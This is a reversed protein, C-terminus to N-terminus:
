PTKLTPAAVAPPVSPPCNVSGFPSLPNVGPRCPQISPPTQGSPPLEDDAGPPLEAETPDSPPMTSVASPSRPVAPFPPASPPAMPTPALPPSGAAQEQVTSPTRTTPTTPGASLATCNKLQAPTDTLVKAGSADLCQYITARASLPVVVLVALGAVWTFGIMM